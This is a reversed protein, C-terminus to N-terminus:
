SVKLVDVVINTITAADGTNVVTLDEVLTSVNGLTSISDVLVYVDFSVSRFETTATTITETALAGPIAVGNEFLQLTVDGAAPATFTASVTVKYVGSQQIAIADGNLAFTNVGCSNKKIYRRYTSGLDVVGGTVVAQSTTNRTGILLM